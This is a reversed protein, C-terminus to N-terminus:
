GINVEGQESIIQAYSRNGRPNAQIKISEIPVEGCVGWVIINDGGEFEDPSMDSYYNEDTNVTSIQEINVDSHNLLRKCQSAITSCVSAKEADKTFSLSFEQEEKELNPNTRCYDAIESEKM